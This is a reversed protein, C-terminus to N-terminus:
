VSSAIPEISLIRRANIGTQRIADGVTVGRLQAFVEAIAPLQAPENRGPHLWSPSLDPADTELVHATPPLDRVLARIRQAREFTMVGGFGLVFGLSLFAEAQQLSGNFAHAIGGRQLGAKRLHKLVTDQARRVHLLVPLDYARALQLQAQFFREQRERDLGPVFFDLGIEGVAVLAPDDRHAEIAAALRALDGDDARDVYMPHIGLAYVCHGPNSQALKVVRGFHDADVAPLVIVDVGARRSREIVQERDSEFEAADLHCHTDILVGQGVRSM